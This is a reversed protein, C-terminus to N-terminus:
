LSLTAFSVAGTELDHVITINDCGSFDLTGNLTYRGHGVGEESNNNLRSALLQCLLRGFGPDAAPLPRVVLRPVLCTVDLCVTRATISNLSCRPNVPILGGFFLFMCGATTTVPAM